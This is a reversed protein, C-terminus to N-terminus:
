TDYYVSELYTVKWNQCKGIRVGELGTVKPNRNKGIEEVMLLCQIIVRDLESVKWDGWFGDFMM